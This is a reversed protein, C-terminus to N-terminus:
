KEIKKAKALSGKGFYGDVALGYKKQYDKVAKLTANGFSGDATLKANICWNLFQQLRKVQTGKDGKGLYNKAPLVPFTGSYTKKTSTKPKNELQANVVKVLEPFRNQLYKGPCDTNAFMNHRTLSGNKTGDYKLKFNYRKCIDVCLKVLTNWSKETIKDTKNSSNSVEITIAQCDNWWSSSTYARDEEKVNCVLSGDYGICYNASAKIGKTQFVNVACQKATLKGSMQHPTIKCVKYQKGDKGKRGKQYNGSHAIFVGNVLSSYM